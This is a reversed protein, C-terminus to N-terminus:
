HGGRVAWVGGKYTQLVYSVVRGFSIGVHWASSTDHTTSSWYWWQVGLFADGEEWQGTGAANSLSFEYRDDMMAEWEEKTPLRWDGAKSGDSLGCQGHALKAASQMATKWNQKGFCNANKLWILGTKNDTVTGDGNDIYRYSLIQLRKKAKDAYKKLTNGNLYAQYVSKTNQQRAKQWANEDEKREKEAQFYAQFASKTDQQRANQWADMDEQEAFSQILAQAEVAYKKVTKGDLYGQYAKVSDQECASHWAKEDKELRTKAVTAFRKLTKGGLYGQYAEVYNERSAVQWAMKDAHVDDVMGGASEAVKELEAPPAAIKIQAQPKQQIKEGCEVVLRSFCSVVERASNPRVKPDNEVCDGLIDRLEPVNPLYRERFPHAEKGSFLRYM